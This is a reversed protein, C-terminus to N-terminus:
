EQGKVLHVEHFPLLINIFTSKIHLKNLFDELCHNNALLVLFAMILRITQESAEIEMRKKNLILIIQTISDILLSIQIELILDMVRKLLLFKILSEMNYNNDSSYLQMRCFRFKLSQSIKILITEYCTNSVNLTNISSSFFVFFINMILTIFLPLLLLLLLLVDILFKFLFNGNIKVM